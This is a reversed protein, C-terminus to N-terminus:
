PARDNADQARAAEDEVLLQAECALLEEGLTEIEAHLEDLQMDYTLRRRRVERLVDFNDPEIYARRELEDESLHRYM